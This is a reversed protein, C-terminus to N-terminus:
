ALVYIHARLQSRFNFYLAHKAHSITLQIVHHEMLNLFVVYFEM